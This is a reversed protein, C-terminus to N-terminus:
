EQTTVAFSSHGRTLAVVEPMVETAFRRVMTAEDATSPSTHALLTLRDIGMDVVAAVQRAIQSPTGAWAFSSVFSDPLKDVVSGMQGFPRALLETLVDDPLTEGAQTVFDANPYSAKIMGLIMPKVAARAAAPNDDLCLDVRVDIPISAADRGVKAAGKAVRELAARIGVPTAYTAVMVGDALRGAMSLMRNGRSAVWIPLDRRAPFELRANRLTVTEGEFTVTEGALLRRVIQITEEVAEVPRVRQMGMERFGVAGAGLLLLARGNSAEDVTAIAAAILGPHYSYPEAVFTGIRARTTRAAAVGLTVWMDRYFKENSVWFTDYGVGEALAVFDGLRSPAAKEWIGLGVEITRSGVQWM